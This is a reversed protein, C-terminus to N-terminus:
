RQGEVEEGSGAFRGAHIYSGDAQHEEGTGAPKELGAVKVAFRSVVGSESVGLSGAAAPSYEGAAGECSAQSWALAVEIQVGVFVGSKEFLM